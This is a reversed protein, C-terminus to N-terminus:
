HLLTPPFILEGDPTLTVSGTGNVAGISIQGGLAVVLGGDVTVNGGLLILNEGDDVQLGSLFPAM